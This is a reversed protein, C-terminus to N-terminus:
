IQAAFKKVSAVMHEKTPFMASHAARGDEPYAKVTRWGDKTEIKVNTFFPVEETPSTFKIKM